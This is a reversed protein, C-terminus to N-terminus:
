ISASAAYGRGVVASMQYVRFCILPQVIGFDTVQQAATYDAQSVPTTLVRKLTTFSNNTYIEVEYGESEESMPVDVGDRWEFGIRNCRVWQLQVNGDTDRGGGLNVPAYPKLGAGINTFSQPTADALGLTVAKYLRALGISATVDAIRKIASGALLVFRDGIAHGATMAYGSGRRGRLLGQLTYSGDVNLTADRFCIIEDGVLAAQTGNVFSAYSVSSLEGYSLTVNLTNIEDPTNGGYFQGLASTSVGMAAPTDFAGVVAYSSGGDTSRFLSAGRWSTNGGNAAAYFGADNDADSLMNINM